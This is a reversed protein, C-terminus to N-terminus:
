GAWRPRASLPGFGPTEGVFYRFEIGYEPEVDLALYRGDHCKIPTGGTNIYQKWQTRM